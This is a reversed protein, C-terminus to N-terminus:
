GKTTFHNHLERRLFASQHTSRTLHDNLHLCDLLQNNASRELVKAM